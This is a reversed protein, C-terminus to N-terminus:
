RKKSDKIQTKKLERKDTMQRNTYTKIKTNPVENISHHVTSYMDPFVKPAVTEKDKNTMKATLVKTKVAMTKDDEKM